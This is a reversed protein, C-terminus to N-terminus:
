RASSRAIEPCAALNPVLAAKHTGLAESREAAVGDEVLELAALVALVVEVHQVRGTAALAALEDDTIAM